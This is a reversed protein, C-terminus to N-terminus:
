GECREGRARGQRSRGACEGGGHAGTLLMPSSPTLTTAAASLSLEVSWSSSRWLAGRPRESPRQRM